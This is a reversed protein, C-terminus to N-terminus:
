LWRYYIFIKMCMDDSIEWKSTMKGLKECGLNRQLEYGSYKHFDFPEEFVAYSMYSYSDLLDEM